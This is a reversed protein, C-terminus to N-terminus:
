STILVLLFMNEISIQRSIWIKCVASMCTCLNKFIIKRCCDGLVWVEYMFINYFLTKIFNPILESFLVFVISFPMFYTECVKRGVKMARLTMKTIVGHFWEFYGVLCNWWNSFMNFQCKVFCTPVHVSEM